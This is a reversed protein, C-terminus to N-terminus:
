LPQLLVGHFQNEENHHQNKIYGHQLYFFVKQGKNLAVVHSCSVTHSHNNSDSHVACLKTGDDLKIYGILYYGGKYHTLQVSFSYIGKIPAVFNGSNPDYGHDSSSGQDLNFKVVRNTYKGSGIKGIVGFNFYLPAKFLNLDAKCRFIGMSFTM